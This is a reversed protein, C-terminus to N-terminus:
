WEERDSLTKVKMIQYAKGHYASLLEYLDNGTAVVEAPKKNTNFVIYKPIM